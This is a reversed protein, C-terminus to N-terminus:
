TEDVAKFVIEKCEQDIVVPYGFLEDKVTAQSDFGHTHSPELDKKCTMWDHQSMRWEFPVSHDPSDLLVVERKAMLDDYLTM